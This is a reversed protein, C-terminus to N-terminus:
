SELSSLLDKCFKVIREAHAVMREAENRTYRSRPSGAPHANPYRAPIYTKDLELAAQRLDNSVPHSAALEDLLDAVSHGWAETNKKQFVSKVAKESSQQASFSAWDYFGRELDSRAHELDGQAQDMWDASREM